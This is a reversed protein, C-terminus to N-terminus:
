GWVSGRCSGSASAHGHVVVFDVFVFGEKSGLGGIAGAEVFVDEGEDAEAVALCADGVTRRSFDEQGDAM